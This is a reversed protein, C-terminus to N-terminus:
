TVFKALTRIDRSGTYKVVRSQHNVVFITPFGQVGYADALSKYKVADVSLMVTQPNRKSMQELQKWAPLFQQCHFCWDAFFLILGRKGAMKTLIEQQSRVQPM